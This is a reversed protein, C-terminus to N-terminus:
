AAHERAWARVRDAVRAPSLGFRELLADNPGSEGDVQLSPEPNAPVGSSPPQCALLGILIAARRIPHALM